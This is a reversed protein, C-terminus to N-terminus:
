VRSSYHFLTWGSIEAIELSFSCLTSLLTNRLYATCETLLAVNEADATTSTLQGRESVATASTYYSLKALQQKTTL